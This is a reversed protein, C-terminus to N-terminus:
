REGGGDEIRGRDILWRLIWARAARWDRKVTSEGRDVLGSIEEVTLGAFVKLMVIKCWGPDHAELATVAEDLHLVDVERGTGASAEALIRLVRGEAARRRAEGVLIQRMARAAAGFFHASSQWSSEGEFQRLRLLAEHVLATTQLQGRDREGRLAAAALARLEEYLRGFAADDMGAGSVGMANVFRTVTGPGTARTQLGHAEQSQNVEGAVRGDLGDAGRGVFDGVGEGGGAEGESSCM